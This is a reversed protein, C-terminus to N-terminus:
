AVANRAAVTGVSGTYGNHKESEIAEIMAQNIVPPLEFGNARSPEGLGLNIITKEHNPNMKLEKELIQRIPNIVNSRAAPRHKMQSWSAAQAEAM